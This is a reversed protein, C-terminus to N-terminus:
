GPKTIREVDAADAYPVTALLGDHNIPPSWGSFGEVTRRTRIWQAEFTPAVEGRPASPQETDLVLEEAIQVAEVLLSSGAAHLAM